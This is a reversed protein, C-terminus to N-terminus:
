SCALAHDFSHNAWSREVFRYHVAAEQLREALLECQGLRALRDAGGHVFFTPPDGSDVM